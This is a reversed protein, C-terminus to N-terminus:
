RTNFVLCNIFLILVFVIGEDLVNESSQAIDYDDEPIWEGEELEYEEADGSVWYFLVWESRLELWLLM